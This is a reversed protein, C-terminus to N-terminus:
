ALFENLFMKIPYGEIEYRRKGVMPPNKPQFSSDNGLLFLELGMERYGSRKSPM